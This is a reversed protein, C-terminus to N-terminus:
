EVMRLLSFLLQYSGCCARKMRGCKRQLLTRRVADRETAKRALTGAYTHRDTHKPTTAHRQQSLEAIPYKRM